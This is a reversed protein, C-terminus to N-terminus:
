HRTLAKSGPPILWQSQAALNGAGSHQYGPCLFRYLHVPNLVPVSVQWDLKGAATHHGPFRPHAGPYMVPVARGCAVVMCFSFVASTSAGECSNITVDELSHPKM